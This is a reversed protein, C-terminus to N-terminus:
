FCGRKQQHRIKIRIINPHLPGPALTYLTHPGWLFYKLESITLFSHPVGVMVYVKITSCPRQRAYLAYCAHIVLCLAVQLHKERPSDVETLISIISVTRLIVSM